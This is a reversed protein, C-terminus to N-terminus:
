SCRRLEGAGEVPPRFASGLASGGRPGGWMALALVTFIFLTALGARATVHEHLILLAGVATPLPRIFVARFPSVYTVVTVPHFRELLRKSFILYVAYLSINRVVLGNGPAAAPDLRLRGPGRNIGRNVAPGKVM